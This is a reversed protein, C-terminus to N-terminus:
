AKKPFPGNKIKEEMFRDPPYDDKRCLLALFLSILETWKKIRLYGV